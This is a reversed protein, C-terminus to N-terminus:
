LYELSAYSVLNEKYSSFMNEKAENFFEVSSHGVGYIFGGITGLIPAGLLVGFYIAGAEANGSSPSSRAMSQTLVLGSKFGNATDEYIINMANEYDGEAAFTNVLFYSVIKEDKYEVIFYRINAETPRLFLEEEFHPKGYVDYSLFSFFLYETEQSSSYEKPEVQSSSCGMFFLLFLSIYLKKM